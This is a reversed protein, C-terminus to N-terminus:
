VPTAQAISSPCARPSGSIRIDPRPLLVAAKASAGTARDSRHRTAVSIGCHGRILNQVPHLRSKCWWITSEGGSITRVHGWLRRRLERPMRVRFFSRVTYRTEPGPHLRTVVASRQYHRPWTRQVFTEISLEDPIIRDRLSYRATCTVNPAPMKHHNM